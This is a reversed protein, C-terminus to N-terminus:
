LYKILCEIFIRYSMGRAIGYPIRYLIYLHYKLLYEM